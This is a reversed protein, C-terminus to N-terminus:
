AGTPRIPWVRASKNLRKGESKKASARMRIGTDGYVQSITLPRGTVWCRAAESQAISLAPM